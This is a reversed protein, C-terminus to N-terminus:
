GAPPQPTSLPSTTAVVASAPTIYTADYWNLHKCLYHWSPDVRELVAKRFPETFQSFNACQFSDSAVGLMSAGMSLHSFLVLM